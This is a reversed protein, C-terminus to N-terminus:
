KSKIVKFTTSAGDNTIRLLYIGKPLNRLNLTKQHTAIDHTSIRVGLANYIEIHKIKETAEITLNDTFPNPYININNKNWNHLGLTSVNVTYDEIQGAGAMSCPNEIETLTNLKKIRLRTEGSQASIPVSIEETVFIQDNGNSNVLSQSFLYTEGNDDFDGDQNWDIFAIIYNENDGNTNGKVTLNYVEGAQLNAIPLSFIEHDPSDNVTPSTSNQIENFEVFSIPEVIFDFVVPGCYPEFNNGGTTLSFEECNESVGSKNVAEVRWYYTQNAELGEIQISTTHLDTLYPTTSNQNTSLYLNYSLTEQDPAEWQFDIHVIDLDSSNNLPSVLTPCDPAPEPVEIKFKYFGHDATNDSEEGFFYLYGDHEFIRNIMTFHPASFLPYTNQQTGDSIFISRGNEQTSNDIAVFYLSNYFERGYNTSPSWLNESLLTKTFGDTKWIQSNGDITLSSYIQNQYLMYNSHETMGSGPFTGITSLVPQDIGNSFYTGDENPIYVLDNLLFPEPSNGYFGNGVNFTFDPNLTDTELNISIYKGYNTPQKSTYILNNGLRLVHSKSTIGFTNTDYYTHDLTILENQTLDYKYIYFNHRNYSYKSAFFYIGDEYLFFADANNANFEGVAQNSNMDFITFKTLNSTDNQYILYHDLLAKFDFNSIFEEPLYTDLNIKYFYAGYEFYVADEFKHFNSFNIWYVNSSRYFNNNVTVEGTLTNYTAIYNKWQGDEYKKASCIITSDEEVLFHPILYESFGEALIKEPMQAFLSQFIFFLSLISLSTKM